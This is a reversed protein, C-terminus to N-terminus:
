SLDKNYTHKINEKRRGKKRGVERGKERRRGGREKKREILSVTLLLGKAAQSEAILIKGPM